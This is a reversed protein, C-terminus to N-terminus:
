STKRSIGIVYIIIELLWISAIVAIKMLWGSSIQYLFMSSLEYRKWAGVATDWIYQLVFPAVMLVYRSRIFLSAVIAVGPWVSAYLMRLLIWVAACVSHNGVTNLYPEFIGDSWEGGFVLSGRWFFFCIIFYLVEVCIMLLIGSINAMIIRELAYKIKSTRSMVSYIMGSNNEICFLDTFTIGSLLSILSLVAGGDDTWGVTDLFFYDNVNNIANWGGYLANALMTIISIYFFPSHIIKRFDQRYM